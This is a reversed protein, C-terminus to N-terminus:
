AEEKTSVVKYLSHVGNPFINRESELANLAFGRKDSQFVVQTMDSQPNYSRVEYITM